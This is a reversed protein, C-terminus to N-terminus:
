RPVVVHGAFVFSLRDGGLSCLLRRSEAEPYQAQEAELTGDCALEVNM